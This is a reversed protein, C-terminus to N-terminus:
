HGLCEPVRRLSQYLNTPPQSITSKKANDGLRYSFEANGGQSHNKTVHIVIESYVRLFKRSSKTNRWAAKPLDFSSEDLRKEFSSASETINIVASIM